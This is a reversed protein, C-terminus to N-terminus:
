GLQGKRVQVVFIQRNDCFNKEWKNIRAEYPKIYRSGRMAQAKVIQDDLLTQIDDIAALIYTGTSRWPKLTFDLGDWEKEMKDMAKELGFEKSAAGSIIELADLKEDLNMMPIDDYSSFDNIMELMAGGAEAMRAAFDRM